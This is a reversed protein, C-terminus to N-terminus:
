EKPNKSINKNKKLSTRKQNKEPIYQEIIRLIQLIKRKQAFTMRDITENEVEEKPNLFHYKERLYQWFADEHLKERSLIHQIVEWVLLPYQVSINNEQVYQKLLPIDEFSVKGLYLDKIDKGEEIYKHIIKQGRYYSTDKHQVGPYNFPYNRKRRLYYWQTNPINEMKWFIQMFVRFDEGSLIEGMAISATRKIDLRKPDNSMYAEATMALWEERILYNAGKMDGIMKESNWRILVHTEIEHQILELVRSLSLTTYISKTVRITSLTSDIRVHTPIAYIEFVKQFISIYDAQSLEINPISFPLTHQTSFKQNDSHHPRFDQLKQICDLFFQQEQYSLNEKKESYLKQLSEYADQVEDPHDIIKGGFIEAEIDEIQQIRARIEESSLHHPIGGKEGEFPLWIQAIEAIRDTHNLSQLLIHKQINTEDLKELQSQYTRIKQRYEQLTHEAQSYLTHKHHKLYEILSEQTEFERFKKGILEGFLTTNFFLTTTGNQLKKYSYIVWIISLFEPAFIHTNIETCIKEIKSQPSGLDSPPINKM